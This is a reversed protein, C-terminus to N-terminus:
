SCDNKESFVNKGHELASKIVDYHAAPNTLNVIMKITSDSLIDDISMAKLHYKKAKENMKDTNLDYCAVVDTITFKDQLSQIYIDSIVGCGIM